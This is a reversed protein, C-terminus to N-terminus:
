RRAKKRRAIRSRAGVIVILGSGSALLYLLTRDEFRSTESQPATLNPEAATGGVSPTQSSYSVSWTDVEGPSTTGSPGTVDSVSGGHTTAEGDFFYSGTGIGIIQLTYNGDVPANLFATKFGDLRASGDAAAIEADVWYFADPIESFSTETLPDYGLRRGQPDTVVFEV